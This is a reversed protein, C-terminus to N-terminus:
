CLNLNLILSSLVILKVYFEKVGISQIHYFEGWKIQKPVTQVDSGFIVEIVGAFLIDTPSFTYLNNCGLGLVIVSGDELIDFSKNFKM